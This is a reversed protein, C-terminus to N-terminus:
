CAAHNAHHVGVYIHWQLHLRNDVPWTQHYFLYPKAVGFYPQASVLDLFLHLAIVKQWDVVQNAPVYACINVGDLCQIGFELKLNEVGSILEQSLSHKNKEYFACVIEGKLSKAHSCAVFYASTYSKSGRKVNIELVDSNTKVGHPLYSPFHNQYGKVCLSSQALEAVKKLQSIKTTFSYTIFRANQLMDSLMMTQNYTTRLRVYMNIILLLMSAMLFNAILLELLSFAAKHNKM